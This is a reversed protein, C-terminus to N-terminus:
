ISIFQMIAFTILQCILSHHFHPLAKSKWCTTARCAYYCWWFSQGSYCFHADTGNYRLCLPNEGWLQKLLSMQMLFHTFVSYTSDLFLLLHPIENAAYFQIRFFLLSASVQTLKIKRRALMFSLMDSECPHCIDNKKKKKERGWLTLTASVNLQSGALREHPQATIFDTVLSLKVLNACTKPSRSKPLVKVETTKNGKLDCRRRGWVLM